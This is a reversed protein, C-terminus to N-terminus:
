DVADDDSTENQASVNTAKFRWSWSIPRGHRQGNRNVNQRWRGQVSTSAKEVPFGREGLVRVEGCATCHFGSTECSLGLARSGLRACKLPGPMRFCWWFEVLLGLFVSFSHFPPLLPFFFPPIKPPGVPPLSPGLPPHNLPLGFWCCPKPRRPNPSKPDSVSVSFNALTPRLRDPLPLLSPVQCSTHQFFYCVFFYSRQKNKLNFIREERRHTEPSLPSSSFWWSVCPFSISVFLKTGFCM